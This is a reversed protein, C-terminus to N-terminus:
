NNAYKIFKLSVNKKLIIEAKTQIVPARLYFNNLPSSCSELTCNQLVNEAVIKGTMFNRYDQAKREVGIQWNCLLFSKIFLIITLAKEM